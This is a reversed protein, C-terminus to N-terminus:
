YADLPIRKVVEQTDTRVVACFFLEPSAGAAATMPDSPSVAACVVYVKSGDPLVGVGRPQFYRAKASKLSVVAIDALTDPDVIRLAKLKFDSCFLRSDDPDVAIGGVQGCKVRKVVEWSELDLLALGGGEGRVSRGVWELLTKYGRRLSDVTAIYAHRGDFSVALDYGDRLEPMTRVVEYTATDIVQLGAKSLVLVLGGGPTCAVASSCGLMDAYCVKGTATIKKASPRVGPLRITRVENNTEADVVHIVPKERDTVYVLRGDPAVAVQSLYTGILPRHALTDTESDIVALAGQYQGADVDVEGVYTFRPLALRREIEARDPAAAAGGGTSVDVLVTSSSSGASASASPSAAANSGSSDGGGSGCGAALGVAMGAALLFACWLAMISLTRVWSMGRAAM